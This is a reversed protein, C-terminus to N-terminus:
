GFALAPDVSVARRVGALSGLVSVVVATIPVLVVVGIPFVVPVALLPALLYAAGIAILSALVSLVIAQLVLGGLVWRTSIGIAKFVAFDRVRELASLYIVSGIICGTVLWLLISILSITDKASHLPRVLDSNADGRTMVKLDDPLSSPTGAIAVSTIVAAGKYAVEQLDHNTIFLNPIGGLMTSENFTGVVVVKRNGLDVTKGIDLGLGPQVLAEGDGQLAHGKDPKPAGISGPQVGLLTISEPGNATKFTYPYFSQPEAVQVGSIARVQDATNATMPTAGFFPGTAAAGVVWQTVGTQDLTHNVEADFSAATGALLLTLALVLAVAVVSILFRKLRFQLDRLAILFVSV